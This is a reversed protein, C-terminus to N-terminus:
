AMVCKDALWGTAIWGWSRSVQCLRPSDSGYVRPMESVCKVDCVFQYRYHQTLVAPCLVSTTIVKDNEGNRLLQLVGTIRNGGSHWSIVPCDSSLLSNTVASLFCHHIRSTFTRLVSVEFTSHCPLLGTTNTWTYWYMGLTISSTVKFTCIFEFITISLDFGNSNM